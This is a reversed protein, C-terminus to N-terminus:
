SAFTEGSSLAMDWISVHSKSEATVEEGNWDAWRSKLKMGALEAMLDLEGPWVYRFPMSSKTATGDIIRLHHSILGQTVVDYEDIGWHDENIDWAVLKEGQPLQQLRPTMVEIVFCGGPKLHAAANRFCAVQAAQTTLNMVTNFVLYVLAFSDDVTTTSFDGITVGINSAGPKLTLRAVMAKSMEIGHVAVGCKALPVAIRGTGIGFELAKGDTALKALVDVVPDVFEPAFLEADDDYIAAVSENFYGDENM